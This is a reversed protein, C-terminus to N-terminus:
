INKNYIINLGKLLLDDDLIMERRCLPVVTSALGGTAIVTCRRGLEEEIREVMGDLACATSYMLGSKLCDVTNTGIVHKPKEFAFKPLQATRKILADSSVAMGTVIMGGRYRKRDDIVSLTTATGMDIIIMPAPYESIGAVADVVLDSGLQAPNDIVISLGTKIGPGVVMPKVGILKRVAASFVSTMTPVVSSIIAGSISVPRVDHMEMATKINAAYELDTALQNTYIRECFLIKNEEICGLVINTNGVDVALLM